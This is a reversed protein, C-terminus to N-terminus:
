PWHSIGDSICMELELRMDPKSNAQRMPVAYAVINYSQKASVLITSLQKLPLHVLAMQSAKGSWIYM